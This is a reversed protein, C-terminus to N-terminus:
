KRRRMELFKLYGVLYYLSDFLSILFGHIGDTFGKQIFYKYPFKLFIKIIISSRSYEGALMHKALWTSYLNFKLIFHEMDRYSYHLMANKLKGAEGDLQLPVHVLQPHHAKGNIFLRLAYDPYWGCSKIEKSGIYGIRPLEYGNLGRPNTEVVELIEEKLPDPIREDADLHLIWSNSCNSFGKNLSENMNWPTSPFHKVKPAFNKILIETDDTSFDDMILIEDVWTLLEPLLEKLHGHENKVPIVVSIGMKM